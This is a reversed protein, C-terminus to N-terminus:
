ILHKNELAALTIQKRKALDDFHSILINTAFFWVETDKTLYGVYWGHGHWDETAAGTKAYLQRGVRIPETKMTYM